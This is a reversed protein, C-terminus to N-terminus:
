AYFLPWVVYSGHVRHCWVSATSTDSVTVTAIVLRRSCTGASLLRWSVRSGSLTRLGLVYASDLVPMLLQVRQWCHIWKTLEALGPLTVKNIKPSSCMFDTWYPRCLSYVDLHIYHAPERKPSSFSSLRNILLVWIKWMLFLSISLFLLFFLPWSKTHTMNEIKQVCCAFRHLIERPGWGLSIGVLSHLHRDVVFTM